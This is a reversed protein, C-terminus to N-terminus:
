KFMRVEGQFNSNPLSRLDCSNAIKFNSGHAHGLDEQQECYFGINWELWKSKGGVEFPHAWPYM